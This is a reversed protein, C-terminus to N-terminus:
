SVVTLNTENRNPIKKYKLKPHGLMMAGAIKHTEPVGISKAVEPSLVSGYTTFGAWCTGIGKTTALLDLYSIAIAGDLAAWNYAKPTLVVAVHPAGRHVVDYGNEFAKIISAMNPDKRFADIVKESLQRVREKGNILIWSLMQSNKATPAYKTASIIEKLLESDVLEDKFNRISRRTKILGNLSEFSAIEKPLAECAEGSINEVSIASSPCIAVCHGCNICGSAIKSNIDPVGSNSPTMIKAPCAAICLGDKLCKDANIKINRPNGTIM